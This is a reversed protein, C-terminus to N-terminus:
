NKTYQQLYRLLEQTDEFGKPEIKLDYFAFGLITEMFQSKTIPNGGNKKNQKSFSTLFDGLEYNYLQFNTIDPKAGYEDISVDPRKVQKLATSIVIDKDEEIIPSPKVITKEVPEKKIEKKVEKEPVKGTMHSQRMLDKAGM